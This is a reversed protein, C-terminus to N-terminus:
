PNKDGEDPNNTVILSAHTKAKTFVADTARDICLHYDHLTSPIELSNGSDAILVNQENLLFSHWWMRVQRRVFPWVSSIQVEALFITVSRLWDRLSMVIGGPRQPPDETLTVFSTCAPYFLSNMSVETIFNCSQLSIGVQYWALSIM